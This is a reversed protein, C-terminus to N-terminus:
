SEVTRGVRRILVISLAAVWFLVILVGFVFIPYIPILSLAAGVAGVWTLWRPIARHRLAIVFTAGVLLALGCSTAFGM